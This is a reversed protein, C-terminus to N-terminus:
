PSLSTTKYHTNNTTIKSLNHEPKTLTTCSTQFFFFIPSITLTLLHHSEQIHGCHQLQCCSSLEALPEETLFACQKNTIKVSQLQLHQFVEMFIKLLRDSGNIITIKINQTSLSDDAEKRKGVKLNQTYIVLLLIVRIYPIMTTAQGTM